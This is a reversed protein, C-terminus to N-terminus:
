ARDKKELFRLNAWVAFRYVAYLTTLIFGEFGDLFGLRIIYATIFVKLPDFILMFLKFKEGSDFMNQAEIVAFKGVTKDIYSKITPYPYHEIHYELPLKIRNAVKERLNTFGRHVFEDRKDYTEMYVKKRFLRPFNNNNFFGGHRIFKGFYDYLIGLFVVDAKDARVIEKLKEALKGTMVEDADIVLVWEHNANSIAYHRAPEVYGTREHYIVIAGCENAIEVTRDESHMDCIIIEDAIDKVSEICRRINAEENLTNIVVSITNSINGTMNIKSML